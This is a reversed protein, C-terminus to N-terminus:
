REEEAQKALALTTAARRTGEVEWRSSAPPDGGTRSLWARHAKDVWAREEATLDKSPERLHSEVLTEALAQGRM